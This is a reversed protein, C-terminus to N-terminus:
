LDPVHKITGSGISLANSKILENENILRINPKLLVSASSHTFHGSTGIISSTLRSQTPLRKSIVYPDKLVAVELQSQNVAFVSTYINYLGTAM